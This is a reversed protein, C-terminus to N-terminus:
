EADENGHGSEAPRSAAADASVREELTQRSALRWQGDQRSWIDQAAVRQTLLVTGGGTRPATMETRELITAQWGADTAASEQIDITMRIDRYREFRKAWLDLFATRSLQAGERGSVRFDPTITDAILKLDESAHAM